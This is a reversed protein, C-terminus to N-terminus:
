RSKYGPTHKLCHERLEDHGIHLTEAPHPEPKPAEETPTPPVVHVRGQGYHGSELDFNHEGSTPIRENSM